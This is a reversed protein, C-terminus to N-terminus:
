PNFKLYIRGGVWWGWDPEYNYHAFTSLAWDAPLDGAAHLVGPTIPTLNPLAGIGPLNGPSYGFTFGIETKRPTTYKLHIGVSPDPDYWYITGSEAPTSYPGKYEWYPSIYPKPTFQVFPFTDSKSVTVPPDPQAFGPVDTGSDGNLIGVGFAVRGGANLNREFGGGIMVHNGIWPKHLFDAVPGPLYLKWESTQAFKILPPLFIPLWKPMGQGPTPDSPPAVQPGPDPRYPDGSGYTQNYRSLDIPANRLDPPTLQYPGGLPPSLQYDGPHVAKRALERLYPSGEEAKDPDDPQMGDTDSLFTPQNDAYLYCNSQREVGLPDPSLFRSLWPAYYRKRCLYLGTEVDREERIYRYRKNVDGARYSSGGYPYYEEYSIPTGILDTELCASRIANPFQLRFMPTATGGAGTNVTTTDVIALRRKGEEVRISLRELTLTSTALDAGTRERYREYAGFYVRELVQNARQVIKRIRRGAADYTFYAVGGGGLGANILRGNHDWTVSSLNPMAVINGATDYLHLGSYPGAAPDGPMSVRDLRNTGSVYTQTRTWGAGGAAHVVSQLNGGPDYTYTEAYSILAQLDNPGPISGILAEPYGNPGLAYGVQGPQERGTAKAIRYIADYEFQQTGTVINGKFYVTQQAQDAIQVANNVPDYTYNLDQLATMDSARTTQVRITRHTRDDYTYQTTVGTGYAASVRQRRANYAISAVIPTTTAGGQMNATIAALLSGAGYTHTIVTGDPQTMTTLRGLADYDASMQFTDTELLGAAAPLFASPNTLGALPGWAPVTQYSNALQLTSQTVHGEFDYAANTLVGAGDFHQYIHSRFNPPALGEGYVIREALFLAGGPPTVRIEIPRHLTDYAVDQEYMRPDWARYPEGVSDVMSLSTGTDAGFKGLVKGQADFTQQLVKNGLPDTIATRNGQIDLTLRNTYSGGPGNDAVALFPRALPDLKRVAPTNAYATALAAARNMPDSPPLASAAAYWVSDLVTDGADSRTETWADWATTEFTGNPYDVRFLRSLPDYRRIEGFVVAVLASEPEYGSDAAFYSEYRKVINGKNDFVTRGNGVWRPNAQGDPEAMTKRMAEHGSGDAYVYSEFWGQNAAGHQLRQYIHVSAPTGTTQFALRDYDLRTTPDALTDGEGAGARGMLATATVQGFEDYSAASRNGNPDTVMSPQLVRYDITATMVNDFNANASTHAETVFLRETDYVISATNGFADTFSIAQYFHVPDYATTGASTWFDGDLSAYGANSTMEATAIKGAFVAALLTAPVALAFRDYILARNAASGFPLPGSLDDAWYQHRVHDLTRMTGAALTGDFPLVTAGTMATDVTQFPLIATTTAVALEYTVSEIPLGHRYDYATDIPTAFTLAACTALTRNQEPEQPVRRAYALNASRVVHGLPDVELSLRHAVRPDAPNREYVCSLTERDFAFCVAHRQGDIPQLQRVEYRTETVAYPASAAPTGDQGYIEQRLTRGKLARYTERLAAPDLDIEVITPALTPANADGTYFEVALAARLDDAEGNWAGTHFWTITHIPPLIYEGGSQDITGPPPGAGHNSSMSDADWSEVRAFGRFEREVGDYYGHAYRYSTQRSALMVSDTATVQAVTQVVFPIRTAWEHGAAKDELYCQTSPAYVIATSAGLGNDVSKLLHPKTSSLLDVYRMPEGADAPDSSSWVLCATGTGLLDAIRASEMSATLPLPISVGGAWSNGAQNFYVDAGRRSLYVLDNAGTGDIDGLRVRKPDFLDSRDFLPAGRMSIRRGFRGYGLNPWYSVDGNRIRVLDAMGDGTMDAVFIVENDDTSLVAAGRADDLPRSVRAAPGYGARGESAYWVFAQDDATLIDTLGDGDIDLYHVDRGELPVTPLSRFPQFPTWNRERTREFYGPTPGSLTAVDMRGDSNLSLLQMGPGMAAFSPQTPFRESGGFRGGGLNRKFSLCPAPPANAALLGPIGEGDLDVLQFGFAAFGAPANRLSDRDITVVTTSLEGVRTYDLNLTPMAQTTVTGGQTWSYGVSRVTILYTITPQEDYGFEAARVLRAPVGLRQQITHFMLVRRCLRYTRIDFGSRFSSFPDQRVPWNAVEDPLDTTHEGYDFVVEFYWTLAALDAYAPNRTGLPATNGYHVRKLYLNAPPAVRRPAEAPDDLPVGTLDEPKYEYFTANGLADFTAELRWQFVHLQNQPDAIRAGPSLGFLSTVNDPSIIRWHTDGTQTHTLREIRAFRGEVRPQYRDVRYPGDAIPVPREGAASLVPVLDDEGTLVFIDSEQNDAYRPLGRDTRRTVTPVDVTWGLGFPGQRNGSDYALSLSPAQQGRCPSLPLPVTFGATGTPGGSRFKEGLGQLAGGSKPLGLPPPAALKFPLQRASPAGGSDSSTGSQRGVMGGDAATSYSENV